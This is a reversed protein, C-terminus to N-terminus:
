TGFVLAAARADDDEIGDLPDIARVQALAADLRELFAPIAADLASQYEPEPYCRVRAMPMEPNYHTLDWWARKTVWLTGQVQGRHSTYFGEPDLLAAVHAKAGGAKGEWGGDEGCLADPSCGVRGDDTTIFGVERPEQGYYLGYHARAQAELDSGRQMWQSQQDDLPRGLLTEAVLEYLYPTASASPKLTKTTLLCDFRSATVVGLRARLWEASGQPADHHIM